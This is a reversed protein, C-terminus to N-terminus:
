AGEGSPPKAIALKVLAGVSILTWTGELIIFGWNRSVVASATLLGAGMANLLQYAVSQSTLKGMTNAAFAALILAAGVLSAIQDWTTM